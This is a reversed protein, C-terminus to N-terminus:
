IYVVVVDYCDVRYEGGEKDQYCYWLCDEDYLKTEVGIGAQSVVLLCPRVRM